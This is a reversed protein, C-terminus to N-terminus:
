LSFLGGSATQVSRVPSVDVPMSFRVRIGLDDMSYDLWQVSLAIRTSYPTWGTFASLYIVFIVLAYWVSPIDIGNRLTERSIYISNSEYQIHCDFEAGGRTAIWESVVSLSLTTVRWSQVWPGWHQMHQRSIHHCLWVSCRLPWGAGACPPAVWVEETKSFPNSSM